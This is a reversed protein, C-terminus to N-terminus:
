SERIIEDWETFFDKIEEKSQKGIIHKLAAVLISIQNADKKAVEAIISGIIAERSKSQPFIIKIGLNKRAFKALEIRTPFYRKNLLAYPLVGILEKKDKDRAGNELSLELGTNYIIPENQTHVLSNRLRRLDSKKMDLIMKIMEKIMESDTSENM